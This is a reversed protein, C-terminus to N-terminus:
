VVERALDAEGTPVASVSGLTLLLVLRPGRPGFPGGLRVWWGDESRVGLERGWGEGVGRKGGGEMGDM